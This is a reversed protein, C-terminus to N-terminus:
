GLKFQQCHRAAELSDAKEPFLVSLRRSAVENLARVIQLALDPELHGTRIKTGVASVFETRTWESITLEDSFLGAIRMRVAESTTQRVFLPVLVSTDLYVM